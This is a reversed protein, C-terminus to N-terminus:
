HCVEEVKYHKEALEDFAIDIVDVERETLEEESLSLCQVVCHVFSMVAAACGWAGCLASIVYCCCCLGM